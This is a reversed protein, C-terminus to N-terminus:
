LQTAPGSLHRLTRLHCARKASVVCLLGAQPMLAIKEIVESALHRLFCLAQLSFNAASFFVSFSSAHDRTM